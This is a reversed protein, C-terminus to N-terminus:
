TPDRFGCAFFKLFGSERLHRTKCQTLESKSTQIQYFIAIIRWKIKYAPVQSYEKIKAEQSRLGGRTLFKLWFTTREQWWNFIKVSNSAPPVKKLVVHMVKLSLIFAVKMSLLTDYKGACTTGNGTFGFNCTCNFSGVTNNCYANIDCNDTMETCDDVDLFFFFYPQAASLSVSPCFSQSVVLGRSDIIGAFLNLRGKNRKERQKLNGCRVKCRTRPLRALGCLSLALASGRILRTLFTPWGAVPRAWRM